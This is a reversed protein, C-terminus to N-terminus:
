YAIQLAHEKVAIKTDQRGYPFLKKNNNYM